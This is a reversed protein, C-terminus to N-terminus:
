RFGLPMGVPGVIADWRSGPIVTSFRMAYEFLHVYTAGKWEKFEILVKRLLEQSGNPHRQPDRQASAHSGSPRRQAGTPPPCIRCDWPTPLCQMLHRNGTAAQIVKVAVQQMTTASRRILSQTSLGPEGKAAIRLTHM